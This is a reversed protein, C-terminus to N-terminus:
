SLNNHYESLLELFKKCLKATVLKVEIGATNDSQDKWFEYRVM